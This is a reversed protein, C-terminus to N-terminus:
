FPLARRGGVGAAGGDKFVNEKGQGAKPVIKAFAVELRQWKMERIQGVAFEVMEKQDELPLHACVARLEVNKKDEPAM